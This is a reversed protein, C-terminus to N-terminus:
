GGWPDLEPLFQWRDAYVFRVFDPVNVVRFTLSGDDERSWELVEPTTSDGWFFSVRDGEVRYRGTDQITEFSEPSHLYFRGDNLSATWTGTNREIQSQPTEPWAELMLEETVEMRYVGTLQSEEGTAETTVPEGCPAAPRAPALGAKLTEIADLVAANGTGARIEELVPAVAEHLAEVQAPEAHVVVGGAACFEDALTAEDPFSRVSWDLTNAAARTLVDRDSDSLGAYRGANAVLVNAKPYFTVNGTATGGPQLVLGSEMGAHESRDPEADNTTAGLSRFMAEATASTPVRLTAGQYDEPGLLPSDFAFPHRLGEPFIALGVVGVQELGAMMETALDSTLVEALLEHSDVLFPANLPRLSDVGETDWARTPVLALDLEGSVALRAVQQDWDPRYGTGVAQWVPEISISGESLDAVQRGFEEIQDASPRGPFDDTGVRLVLSAGATGAAADQQIESTAGGSCGTVVLAAALAAGSATHAKM